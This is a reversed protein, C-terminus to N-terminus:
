ADAAALLNIRMQANALSDRSCEEIVVIEYSFGAALLAAIWKAKPTHAYAKLYRPHRHCRARAPGLVSKGVYCVEDTRPDVLGYIIPRQVKPADLRGVDLRTVKV